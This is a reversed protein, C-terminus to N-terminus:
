GATSSATASPQLCDLLAGSYEAFVNLAGHEVEKFYVQRSGIDLQTNVPVGVKRLADAYIDALM